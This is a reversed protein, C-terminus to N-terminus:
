KTDASDLLALRTRLIKHLDSWGMCACNERCLRHVTSGDNIFLLQETVWRREARLLASRLFSQLRKKVNFGGINEFEGFEADFEAIIEEIM